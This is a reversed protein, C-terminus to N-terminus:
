YPVVVSMYCIDGTVVLGLGGGGWGPCRVYHIYGLLFQTLTNRYLKESDM